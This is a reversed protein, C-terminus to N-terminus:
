FALTVTLLDQGRNPLRIGANSWHRVWVEVDLKEGSPHQLRVGLQSAFNWHTSNMLDEETKYSVGFGFFLRWEPRAFLQWRRSASVGWYPEGLVRPRSWGSEVLTQNSAIRFLGV